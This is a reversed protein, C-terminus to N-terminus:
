PLYDWSSPLLPLKRDGYVSAAAPLRFLPLPQQPAQHPNYHLWQPPNGYPVDAHTFLPAFANQNNGSSATQVASFCGPKLTVSDSLLQFNIKNTIFTNDNRFIRRCRIVIIIPHQNHTDIIEQQILITQIVSKM